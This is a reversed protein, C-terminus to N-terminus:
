YFLFILLFFYIYIIFYQLINNEKYINNIFYIKNNGQDFYFIFYIKLSIFNKIM